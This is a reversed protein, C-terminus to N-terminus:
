CWTSRATMSRFAGQTPLFSSNPPVGASPGASHSRQVPHTSVLPRVVVGPCHIWHAGTVAGSTSSGPEALSRPSASRGAISGAGFGTTLM